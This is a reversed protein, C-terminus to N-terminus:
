GGSVGTCTLVTIIFFKWDFKHNFQLWCQWQFSKHGCMIQALIYNLDTSVYQIKVNIVSKSQKYSFINCDNQVSLATEYITWGLRTCWSKELYKVTWNRPHLAYQQSWKMCTEESSESDKQYLTLNVAWIMGSGMATLLLFFMLFCLQCVGTNCVITETSLLYGHENM